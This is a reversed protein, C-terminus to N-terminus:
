EMNCNCAFPLKSTEIILAFHQLHNSVQRLEILREIEDRFLETDEHYHKEIVNQMYSRFIHVYQMSWCIFVILRDHVISDANFRNIIMFKVGVEIAERWEVDVTDKLSIAIM